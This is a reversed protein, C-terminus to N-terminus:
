HSRSPSGGLHTYKWSPLISSVGGGLKLIEYICFYPEAHGGLEEQGRAWPTLGCCVTTLKPSTDVAESKEEHSHFPWVYNHLSLDLPSPPDPLSPLDLPSPTDLSYTIPNGKKFLILALGRGGKFVRPDTVLIISLSYM